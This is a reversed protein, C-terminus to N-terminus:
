EEVCYEGTFAHLKKLAVRQNFKLFFKDEKEGVIGLYGSQLFELANQIEEKSIREIKGDDCYYEVRGKIEDISRDSFDMNMILMELNQSFRINDREKNKLFDIDKNTIVGSKSFLGELEFPSFWTRKFLTYLDELFDVRILCANEMEADKIVAPQFNTSIIVMYKANHKAKHRKIRTFNIRGKSDLKTSKADVIFKYPEKVLIDTDGPGGIKEAVFGLTNFYETIVEEFKNPKDSTKSYVKIKDMLTLKEEVGVPPPKKEKLVIEGVKPISERKLSLPTFDFYNVFETVEFKGVNSIQLYYRDQFDKLLNFKWQGSRLQIKNLFEEFVEKPFTLYNVDGEAVECLCAVFLNDKSYKEYETKTVGFWFKGKLNQTPGSNKNYRLYLVASSNVRIVDNGRINEINHWKRLYNILNEKPNMRLNGRQLGVELFHPM